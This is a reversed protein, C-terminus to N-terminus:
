YHLLIVSFYKKLLFSKEKLLFQSLKVWIQKWSLNSFDINLLNLHPQSQYQAETMGPGRDSFAHEKNAFGNM